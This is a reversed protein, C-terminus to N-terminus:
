LLMAPPARGLRGEREKPRPLGPELEGRPRAAPGGTVAAAKLRGPAPVAAVGDPHDAHRCPHLDRDAALAALAAAAHGGTATAPSTEPGRRQHGSPAVSGVPDSPVTSEM